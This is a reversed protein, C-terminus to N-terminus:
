HIAIRVPDSSKSLLRRRRQKQDEMEDRFWVAGVQMGIRVARREACTERCDSALHTRIHPVLSPLRPHSYKKDRQTM